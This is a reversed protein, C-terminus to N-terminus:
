KASRMAQAFAEGFRQAWMRGVVEAASPAFKLVPNIKVRPVFIFLLTSDTKTARGAKKAARKGLDKRQLLLERGGSLKIVYTGKDGVVRNGERHLNFAGPKQSNPIIGRRIQHDKIPVAIGHNGFPTKVTDAEFKNFVNGGVSANGPSKIAIEAYLDAKTAFHIIKISRDAFAPRRINFVERLRGRERTQVDIALANLAKSTAFPLQRQQLDDMDKTFQDLDVHINIM